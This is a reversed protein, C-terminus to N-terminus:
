LNYNGRKELKCILNFFYNILNFFKNSIDHTNQQKFLKSYHHNRLWFGIYINFEIM